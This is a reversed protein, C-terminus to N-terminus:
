VGYYSYQRRCRLIRRCAWVGTQPTSFEIAIPGNFQPSGSLVPSTPQAGDIATFTQPSSPDLTLPNTPNGLVCGSLAGGASLPSAADLQGRLLRRVDGDAVVRRGWLGGSHVHNLTGLPVESFTIKGAGAQFASEPIDIIGAARASGIAGFVVAAATFAFLCSLRASGKFDKKM